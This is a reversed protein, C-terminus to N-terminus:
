LAQQNLNRLTKLEPFAPIISGVAFIEKLSPSDYIYTSISGSLKELAPYALISIM